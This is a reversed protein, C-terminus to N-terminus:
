QYTVLTRLHVTSSQESVVTVHFKNEKFFNMIVKVDLM